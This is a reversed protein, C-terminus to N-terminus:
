DHKTSNSNFITDVDNIQEPTSDYLYCISCTSKLPNSQFKLILSLIKNMWLNKNKLITELQIQHITLSNRCKINYM